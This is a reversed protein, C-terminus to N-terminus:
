FIKAKGVPILRIILKGVIDKAYVTGFWRSDLSNPRNDGCVFVQGAGIITDVNGTTQPIPFTKGYPLSYDPDYGNPHAANYITIVNNRIVLHDGPLAIVRKILQKNELEPEQFVIIDGRDPIYAHGTIASWTKPLKWVILRDNNDLTPNMSAGDVQYSQFVFFVLIFAVFVATAIMLLSSVFGHSGDSRKSAKVPSHGSTSLHVPPLESHNTQNEEGM